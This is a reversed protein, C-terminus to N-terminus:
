SQVLNEASYRMPNYIYLFATKAQKEKHKEWGEIGEKLDWAWQM